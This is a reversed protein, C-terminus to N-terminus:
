LFQSIHDPFGLFGMVQQRWAPSGPFDTSPLETRTQLGSFWLLRHCLEWDSVFPRLVLLVLTGPCFIPMEPIPNAGERGEQEIRTSWPNSPAWRYMTSMSCFVKELILLREYTRYFTSILLNLVNVENSTM